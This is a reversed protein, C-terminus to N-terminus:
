GMSTRKPNNMTMVMVDDGKREKDQEWKADDQKESDNFYLWDRL